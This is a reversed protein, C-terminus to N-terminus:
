SKKALCIISLGVPLNIKTRKILNAEGRLLGLFASNLWGLGPPLPKVDSGRDALGIRKLLLRRIAAIPLLISNAYSARLITFGARELKGTLEHISYRHQTGLAEDHSSKMWEYAAARVFATGGPRLVRHMERMAREDAAKCPLQVLVDFSTILDFTSDAFPLDTVSAQLLREHKRERCFKLADSVLDIGVVRGAGAYRTLWSIMGGTGCGADLILRERTQTYASDLMAATIERMGAFWWFDQELTYLDQYDEAQM